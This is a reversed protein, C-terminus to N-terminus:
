PLQPFRAVERLLGEPERGVNITRVDARDLATLLVHRELVEPLQEGCESDRPRIEAPREVLLWGQPLPRPGARM